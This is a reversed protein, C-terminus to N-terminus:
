DKIQNRFHRETEKATMGYKRKRGNSVSDFGTILLSVGVSFLCVIGFIMPIFALKIIGWAISNADTPEAKFGDAIGEIGSILLNDWGWRVFIFMLIGFVVTRVLYKFATM